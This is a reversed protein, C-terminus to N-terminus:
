YAFVWTFLSLLLLAPTMILSTAADTLHMTTGRTQCTDLHSLTQYYEDELSQHFTDTRVNVLATASDKFILDQQGKFTGFMRFVDQGQPLEESARLLLIRVEEQMVPSLTSSMLVKHAPVRALHCTNYDVVDAAGTNRCLLKYDVARLNAAWSANNNGNTNDRVTIHKVFAVDGAGEALCRFAGTYGSYAESPGRDCKNTGNTGVCQACLSQPNTGEPDYQPDKAGPVCSSSFFSGMQGALDCNNEDLLGAKMLTVVPIKWGATRGIGTHCSKKGRLQSLSTIGSDARVVAVAFYSADQLGYRESVVPVLSYEVHARYVDGGDATTIHAEDTAVMALCDKSPAPTVCQLGPRIRRSKLVQK